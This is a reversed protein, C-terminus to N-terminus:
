PPSTVSITGSQALSPSGFHVGQKSLMGEILRRRAKALMDPEFIPTSDDHRAEQMEELAHQGLCSTELLLEWSELSLRATNVHKVQKRRINFGFLVRELFLCQKSPTM